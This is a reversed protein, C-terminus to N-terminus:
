AYFYSPIEKQLPFLLIGLQTVNCGVKFFKHHEALDHRYDESFIKFVKLRGFVREIIVRSQGILSNLSKDAESLNARKGKKPTVVKPCTTYAKDGLFVDNQYTNEIIGSNKFIKSDHTKGM